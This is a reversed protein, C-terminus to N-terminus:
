PQHPRARAQSRGRAAQNREQARTATRTAARHQEQTMQRVVLTGKAIQEQMDELRDIRHQEANHRFSSVSKSTSPARPPTAPKTAPKSPKGAM